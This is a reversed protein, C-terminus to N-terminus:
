KLDNKTLLKIPAPIYDNVPRKELLKIASEVAIFAEEGPFQAVTAQMRGAKVAQLAEPIADTGIVNVSGEKNAAKLADLAGLAMTDNAAYLGVLDPHDKLLAATISTAKARDWDAPTSAVVKFRSDKGILDTFGNKRDLGSPNGAKGELVAVKGGGKLNDVMWQAALNGAYVNDSVIVTAVKVNSEKAAKLDLKEDVNVVPIGKASARALAPLLNTPTVPSVLLADPNRALAADLLELQKDADQETPITIIELDVGLSQGAEEYGKKMAQWYDNSLTKIVAVMKYRKATKASPAATPTPSDGCAALLLSTLLITVLALVFRQSFTRSFTPMTAGGTYFLRYAAFILLFTPLIEPANAPSLCLAPNSRLFPQSL